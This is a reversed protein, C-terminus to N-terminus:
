FDYEQTNYCRKVFIMTMKRFIEKGDPREISELFCDM